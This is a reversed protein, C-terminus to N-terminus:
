IIKEKLMFLQSALLLLFILRPITCIFSFTNHIQCNTTRSAWRLRTVQLIILMRYIQNSCSFIFAGASHYGITTRSRAYVFKVLDSSPLPLPSATKSYPGTLVLLKQFEDQVTKEQVIKFGSCLIKRIAPYPNGKTLGM